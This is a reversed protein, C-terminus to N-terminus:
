RFQSLMEELTGKPLLEQLEPVEEATCSYIAVSDRTAASLVPQVVRYVTHIFSPANFIIARRVSGPYHREGVSGIVGAAQRACSMFKGLHSMGLGSADVLVIFGAAGVENSRHRRRENYELYCDLIDDESLKAFLAGIDVLELRWLEVPSGDHAQWWQVPGCADRSAQGSSGAIAAADWGCGGSYIGGDWGTCPFLHRSERSGFLRLSAPSVPMRPVDGKASFAKGNLGPRRALVDVRWEATELFRKRAKKMDWGTSRLFRWACRETCGFAQVLAGEAEGNISGQIFDALKRVKTHEETTWRATLSQRIELRIAELVPQKNLLGKEAEDEDCSHFGDDISSQSKGRGGRSGLTSSTKRARSKPWDENLTGFDDGGGKDYDAKLKAALKCCACAVRVLMRKRHLVYAVIVIFVETVIFFGVKARHSAAAPTEPEAAGRAIHKKIAREAEEAPSQHLNSVSWLFTASLLTVCVVAGIIAMPGWSQPLRSSMQVTQIRGTASADAHPGRRRSTSSFQKSAENWGNANLPQAMDDQLANGCASCFRARRGTLPCFRMYACSCVPCIPSTGANSPPGDEIAREQNLTVKDPRTGGEESAM